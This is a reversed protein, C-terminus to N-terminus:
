DTSRNNSVSDHLSVARSRFRRLVLYIACALGVGVLDSAYDGLSATRNVFPQTTEDLIGVCLLIGLGAAVHALRIPDPLSLLFFTAILGYAGIHEVKDLVRRQLVRPIADQPIHTLLLVVTLSLLSAILWRRRFRRQTGNSPMPM